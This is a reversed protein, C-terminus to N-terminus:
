NLTRRTAGVMAAFALRNRRISDRTTLFTTHVTPGRNSAAYLIDGAGALLAMSVYPEFMQVVDVEGKRLARLNDGM